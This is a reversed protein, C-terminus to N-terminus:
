SNEPLFIEAEPVHVPAPESIPEVEQHAVILSIRGARTFAVHVWDGVRYGPNGIEYASSIDSSTTFEGCGGSQDDIFLSYRPNGNTSNRLREIAVLQVAFPTLTGPTIKM